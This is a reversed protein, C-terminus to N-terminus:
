QNRARKEKNTYIFLFSTLGLFLIVLDIASVEGLLLSSLMVPATLFWAVIPRRTDRELIAFWDVKKM